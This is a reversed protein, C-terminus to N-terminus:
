ATARRSTPRTRQESLHRLFALQGRLSRNTVKQPTTSMEMLEINLADAIVGIEDLPITQSLADQRAAHATRYDYSLYKTAEHAVTDPIFETGALFVAIRMSEECVILMKSAIYMARWLMESDTPMIEEAFLHGGESLSGVATFQRGDNSQPKQCIVITAKQATRGFPFFQRGNLERSFIFVIM